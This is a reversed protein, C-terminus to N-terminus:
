PAGVADERPPRIDVQSSSWVSIQGDGITAPFTTDRRWGARVREFLEPHQLSSGYELTTLVFTRGGGRAAVASDLAAVSAVFRYRSAIPVDLQEGYYRVGRTTPAIALVLDDAGRVREVYLLAARFPQKPVAFYRRLSLLSVIALVAFVPWAVRRQYPRALRLALAEITVAATLVALPLWLLFFRPSVTLGRAVLVIATLVGPLTLATAVAWQRRWLVLWGGSALLLFPAAAMLGRTGFGDSVGRAVDHLLAMSTPAFGTGAQAYTRSIVLFAEPLPVAFVLLCVFGSAVYVGSLRRLLPAAAGDRRHVVSLAVLAILLQSAIVFVTNLLAMVGLVTATAYLVWDRRRDERLADLLARTSVLAFFLYAIYGRANQSFFVHHYSVALLLVAGLSAWRSMVLRAVRYLAPMSAVGISVAALRVSWEAVGFLSVSVKMLLSMLLHNNSTRYSGVIVSWPQLAYDGLSYLEDIWLEADVRYVRLALALLTIAILACRAQTRTLDGYVPRVAFTPMRASAPLPTWRWGSLALAAVIVAAAALLVRLLLVGSLPMAELGPQRPLADYWETPVSLALLM